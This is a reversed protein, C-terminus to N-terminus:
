RPLARALPQAALEGAGARFLLDVRSAVLPERQAATGVPRQQEAAVDVRHRVAAPEVPRQVYHGAGLNKATDSLVARLGDGDAEHVPRVLFARAEAPRQEARRG